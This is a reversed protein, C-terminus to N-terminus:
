RYEATAESESTGAPRFGALRAVDALFRDALKGPALAAHVVNERGLALSLEAVTFLAVEPVGAGLRRMKTKGEAAADCAAILVATEGSRLKGRVKEFGVVASGARRALGLTELARRALLRETLDALDDDVSVRRRAARAFLGKSQARDLAERQASLWLGRGPLDGGIDPVVAGEPGVVFRVLEATEKVEGSVICRRTPTAAM